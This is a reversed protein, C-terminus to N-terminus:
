WRLVDLINSRDDTWPERSNSSGKAPRWGPTRALQSTTAHMDSMVAYSSSLIGRALDEDTDHRVLCTMGADAALDAVVPELDCHRNSIHFVLVGDDTLKSRYLALAERTLLHTPIADSSFADLLILSFQNEDAAQLTQRGDGIVISYRTEACISLHTFLNPDEAIRAVVPDIEFITFQQSDTGFSVAAGTGLGVLAIEGDAPLTVNRFVDGLPGRRSYYTLPNCANADGQDQIGHMTVGHVLQNQKLETEELVWHVGFYSRDVFLVRGPIPPQWASHILVVGAVAAYVKPRNTLILLVLVPVGIMVLMITMDSRARITATWVMAGAILLATFTAFLFESQPRDNWASQIPRALLFGSVGITIAYEIVRPFLVPAIMSNFVGGLVGGVSMWVYFETLHRATPRTAALEGHCVMAAVFFAAVHMLLVSWDGLLLSSFVLLTVAYPFARLYTERSVLQKRAFVFIFSLLYLTLPIVWLMPTPALDTTVYTTVALMWSSPVFALAIWRVRDLRVPPSPSPSPSHSAATAADISPREQRASLFRQSALGCAAILAAFLGFGVMWTLLQEGLALQSEILLPYGLLGVLSGVNSASYLFYPDDASENRTRSWWTQLMPSTASLVFFPLGISVALQSILWLSPSDASTPTGDGLGIPFVVFSLGLVILHVALQSRSGLWRTTAHVYLYGCLLVAQFFCVSTNWVAPTGGLRPLLLRAFMPQVWFLLIASVLITLQFIRLISM